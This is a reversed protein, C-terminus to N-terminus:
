KQRIHFRLSMEEGRLNVLKNNQDVLKTEMSSIENVIIPLYVLNHPVEIIKYGPGVNPFFSYIIPETSGNSYSSGIISSTVRLSNISMINVLTESEHDGTIYQKKGFGLISRISNETTFDVKFNEDISM